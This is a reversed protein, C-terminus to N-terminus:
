LSNDKNDETSSGYKLKNLEKKRIYKKATTKEKSAIFKGFNPLKITKFELSRMTEATLKFQSNYIEEIVYLPKNYKVALEKFIDEIRKQM